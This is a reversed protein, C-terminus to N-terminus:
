EPSEIEVLLLPREAFLLALRLELALLRHEGLFDVEDLPELRAGGVGGLDLAPDLLQVLDLADLRRPTALGHLELELGARARAVVDDAQAVDVLAVAGLRDILAQVEQHAALFAPAHQAGVAGAFRRQQLQHGAVSGSWPM